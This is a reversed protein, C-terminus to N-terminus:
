TPGRATDITPFTPPHESQRVRDWNAAVGEWWQVVRAISTQLTFITRSQERNADDLKGIRTEAREVRTALGTLERRYHEHVRALEAAHQANVAELMAQWEDIITSASTVIKAEAARQAKEAQDASVTKAKKTKRYETGGVVGVVAALLGFFAVLVEPHAWPAVTLMDPAHNM